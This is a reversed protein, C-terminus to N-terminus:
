RGVRGGFRRIAAVLDGGQRRVHAGDGRGGEVAVRQDDEVVDVDGVVVWEHHEELRQDEPKGRPQVQDQRAAGLRVEADGTQAGGAVDGADAGLIEGNGGVLHRM